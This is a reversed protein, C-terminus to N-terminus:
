DHSADGLLFGHWVNSADIYYGVIAGAPNFSIPFTSQSGPPDFRTIAGDAARVFRAFARLLATRTAM